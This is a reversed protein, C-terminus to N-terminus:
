DGKNIKYANIAEQKDKFTKNYIIQNNKSIRVQWNGYKTKNIGPYGYKNPRSKKNSNQSEISAWVCNSKNYGEDNNVRELTYKPNPKEGMDRLFQDFDHVWASCIKIGRGGYRPYDKSNKNLCRAKMGEWTSYLPHSTKGTKQRRPWACYGQRMQKCVHSVDLGWRKAFDTKTDYGPINM